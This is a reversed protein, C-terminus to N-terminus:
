DIADSVGEIVVGSLLITAYIDAAIAEVKDYRLSYPTKIALTLAWSQVEDLTATRKSDRHIETIEGFAGLLLSPITISHHNDVLNFQENLTVLDCNDTINSTTLKRYTGAVLIIRKMHTPILWSFLKDWVTIKESGWTIVAM